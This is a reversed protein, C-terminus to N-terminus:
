LMSLYANIVPTGVVAMLWAALSLMPGFPFEKGKGTKTILANILGFVCSAIIIFVAGAAGFQLGLVAMLKIDGGGMTERKMVKDMILVVILLVVAPILGCLLSIIGTGELLRLLSLVAAFIMLGDPIEMIELDVLSSVLLVCGLILLRITCLTFDHALFVTVFYTGSILEAILYRPSIKEGCYRCRGKLFIYSFVPVLDKASLEHGCTACHSRGKAINEHHAIRWGWANCFSGFITGFVFILFLIYIKTILPFDTLNLM